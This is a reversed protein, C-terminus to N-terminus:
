KGLLKNIELFLLNYILDIENLIEISKYISYEETIELLYTLEDTLLNRLKLINLNVLLDFIKKDSYENSINQHYSTNM